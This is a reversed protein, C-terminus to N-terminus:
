PNKRLKHSLSSVTFASQWFILKAEEKSFLSGRKWTENAKLDNGNKLIEYFTMHFGNFTNEYPNVSKSGVTRSCSQHKMVATHIPDESEDRFVLYLLSNLFPAANPLSKRCPAEAGILSLGQCLRNLILMGVSRNGRCLSFTM